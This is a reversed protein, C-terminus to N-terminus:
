VFQVKTRGILSVRGGNVQNTQRYLMQILDRPGCHQLKAAYGAFVKVYLRCPHGVVQFRHQIIVAVIIFIQIEEPFDDAILDIGLKGVLFKEIFHGRIKGSLFLMGYGKGPAQGRTFTIRLGIYMKELLCIEKYNEKQKEKIWLFM